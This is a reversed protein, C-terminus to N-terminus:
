HNDPHKSISSHNFLTDLVKSSFEPFLSFVTAFSYASGRVKVKGVSTHLVVHNAQQLCSLAGEKLNARTDGRHKVTSLNDMLVINRLYIWKRM